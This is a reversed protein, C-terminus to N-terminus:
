QSNDLFFLSKARKKASNETNSRLARPSRSTGHRLCLFTRILITFDLWLSANELYITDLMAKRRDSLDDRGNIQSLGSIGPRMAYVGKETRIRHLEREEPILPRPGIVSMDGRLVHFLHTLEDLSHNRLFSGVPTLYETCNKLKASPCQPTENKMTRVKYCVFPAGNQGIRTQRFLFPGESTAKVAIAICSLPLTSLMLGASAYIIDLVRKIRTYSSFHM